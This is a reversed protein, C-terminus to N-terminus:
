KKSRKLFEKTFRRFAWAGSSLSDYEQIAKGFSPSEALRVNRPIVADYVLDKFYNKVEYSVDKTLNNRKDYMNFLVGEIELNKNLNKKIGKITTMLDSLGELAYYECQVPILLSDSAVLANISLVGLSPPADILVYDYKDELEALANKLINHSMESDDEFSFSSLRKNSPLLDLNDRANILAESIKNGSSFVDYVTVKLENKNVGLGSTTNGQPDLDVILVNNNKRSIGYALNIAVTTKGVGGKQNFITIIKKM